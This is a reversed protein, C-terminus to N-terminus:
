TPSEASMTRRMNALAKSTQSKVTGRSCGLLHAIEAESLDEYYRLVLTARQGPALERLAIWLEDRDEHADPLPDTSAVEPAVGFPLELLRKRRKSSLFSRTLCTRTYSDVAERASIREWAVYTKALATQVLDEAEREDGVLLFAYRKLSVWRAGVFDTFDENKGM